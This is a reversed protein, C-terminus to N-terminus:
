PFKFDGERSSRLCFAPGPGETPFDESSKGKRPSPPTQLFLTNLRFYYGHMQHSTRPLHLDPQTVMGTSTNRLFLDRQPIRLIAPPARPLPREVCLSAWSQGQALQQGPPLLMEPQTCLCTAPQYGVEARRWAPLNCGADSPSSLTEEKLCNVPTPPSRPPVRKEAKQEERPEPYRPPPPPHAASSPSM